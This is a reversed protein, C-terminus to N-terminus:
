RRAGEEGSEAGHRGGAAELLDAAIDAVLGADQLYARFDGIDFDGDGNGILDLYRLEAATLVDAPNLLQAVVDDVRLSPRSVSLTVMDEASLAGSAARFVVEFSGSSELAGSIEGTTPDLELAVPLADGGVRSWIFSENGGSASLTDAYAAGMIGATLETTQITVPVGFEARVFYPKAMKLNLTGSTATTDGNWQIFAFGPQANAELRVPTGPALWAVGNDNLTVSSSILGSADALARLRHEIALQATFTDPSEDVTVTHSRAGGDSWSRFAYRTLTDGQAADVAITKTGPYLWRQELPAAYRVGNVIVETGPGMSTTVRADTRYFDFNFSISGNGDLNIDYISAGSVSSNNLKSSPTTFASFKRSSTSGPFPDGADGNNINSGLHNIGDAQELDVGHPWSANVRNFGRRSAILDPSIHWILLGEARVNADSGLAARNELLFYETTNAIEVRIAQKSNIIPPLTRAGFNAPEVVEVLIWGLDDKSWASMHAPSTPMNWSGTGMLGWYGIGASNGGGTDYLDPLGFGHGLEHSFTGIPMVAGANCGSTGGVAPQIIYDDVSVGDNTTYRVGHWARYVWRHSWIHSGGCEGGRLPHLVAILDVRGDGDNDYRTFDVSPDAADLLEKIFDGTNDTSPTLGNNQGEYWTSAEKAKFWGIVDGTITVLGSSLEDYFGTVSYPPEGAARFLVDDIEAPSPHYTHTSDSFYGILVPIRFTGSAATAATSALSRSVVGGELHVNLATYERTAALAQRRERVRQALKRWGGDQNFHYASPDRAAVEYYGPPPRVGHVRGLMEVDQAASGVASVATLGITMALFFPASARM